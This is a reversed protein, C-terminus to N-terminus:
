GSPSPAPSAKPPPWVPTVGPAPFVFKAMDQIRKINPIQVSGYPHNPGGSRVMNGRIVVQLTRDAGIEEALAALEPLRDDPVDTRVTGALADLLRPLSLLLNNRVAKDRIAILVQQQREARTFDSEGNSKRIRAYALANKGDLHHKGASISWGPGVGYGGYNPDALARKVNVDIGGVADVVEVFGGLDIKSYYHIPIGLLAGVAQQLARTGGQPFEAKNRNAYGLLSNIKPEFTKGNGLPVDVMDRPISVMSVTQGDSDLSVVILTDTLAHNRRPGSDIGMLLVNIREGPEPSPGPSPLDDEPNLPSPQPQSGMGGVPDSAGRDQFIKSFAENAVYGYYAGAVHPASVWVLALVFGAIAGRGPALRFRSDSFAHGVAILRWLLVLGNLVMVAALTTPTIITAAIRTPTSVRFLVLGFLVLGLSPVLFWLAPRLRRNFAQGLGPLISSLLAAALRRRDTPGTEPRVRRAHVPSYTELPIAGAVRRPARNPARSV